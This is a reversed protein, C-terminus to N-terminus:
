FYLLTLVWWFSLVFQEWSMAHRLMQGCMKLCTCSKRDFTRRCWQCEIYCNATPTDWSLNKVKLRTWDLSRENRVFVVGCVNYLFNFVIVFCFMWVGLTLRTYYELATIPWENAWVPSRWRQVDTHDRGTDCRHLERNKRRRFCRSRFSKQQVRLVLGAICGSWHQEELM